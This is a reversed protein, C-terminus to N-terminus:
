NVQVQLPAGNGFLGNQPPQATGAPAPNGAGCNDDDDDCGDDEDDDHGHRSGERYRDDDDDEDGSALVLPMARAGGEFHAAIHRLSGGAPAQMASSAPIGIAVTLATSTVLLTLIKKM